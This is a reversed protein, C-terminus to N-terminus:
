TMHLPQRMEQVDSEPAKARLARLLRRLLDVRGSPRLRHDLVSVAAVAAAAAAAGM